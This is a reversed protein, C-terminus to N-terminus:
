RKLASPDDSHGATQDQETVVAVGLHCHLQPPAVPLLLGRLCIVKQPLTTTKLSFLLTGGM